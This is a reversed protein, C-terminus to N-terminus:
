YSVQLNPCCLLCSFKVSSVISSKSTTVISSLFFYTVFHVDSFVFFWWPFVESVSPVPYVETWNVWIFINLCSVEPYLLIIEECLLHIQHPPHHITCSPALRFLSDLQFSSFIRMLLLVNGFTHLGNYLLLM